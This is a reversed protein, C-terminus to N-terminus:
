AKLFVEKYLDDLVSNSERSSPTLAKIAQLSVLDWNETHKKIKYRNKVWKM